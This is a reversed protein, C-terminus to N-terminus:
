PRLRSIANRSGILKAAIFGLGLIAIMGVVWIAVVLWEGVNAGFISVWSLWEVIEPDVPVIDVNSSIANGGLGLLAHAGWAMLSWLAAAVAALLWVLKKVPL